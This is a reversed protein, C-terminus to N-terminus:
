LLPEPVVHWLLREKDKSSQHRVTHALCRRLRSRSAMADRIPLLSCFTGLRTSRFNANIRAGSKVNSVSLKSSRSCRSMLATFRCLLLIPRPVVHLVPLRADLSPCCFSQVLKYKPGLWRRHDFRQLKPCEIGSSESPGLLCPRRGGRKEVDIAGGKTSVFRGQGILDQRERGHRYNGIRAGLGLNTNCESM